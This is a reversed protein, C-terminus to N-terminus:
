GSPQVAEGIGINHIERSFRLIPRGNIKNKDNTSCQCSREPQNHTQFCHDSLKTQM